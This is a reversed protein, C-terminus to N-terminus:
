DKKQFLNEYEEVEKKLDEPWEFKDPCVKLAEEKLEEDLQTDLLREASCVHKVTLGKVKRLDAFDLKANTFNTDGWNSFSGVEAGVLSAGTLDAVALNVSVLNTNELNADPCFAKWMSGRFLSSGKLNVQPLMANNLNSGWLPINTIGLGNLRRVIGANRYAAEDADWERYDDLEEHYRKITDRRGKLYEFFALLVGFLLLDFLFGMLETLVGAETETPNQIYLSWVRPLIFWCAVAFFILFFATNSFLLDSIKRRIESLHWGIKM